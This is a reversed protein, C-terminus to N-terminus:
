MQLSRGNVYTDVDAGTEVEHIDGTYLYSHAEDHWVTNQTYSLSFDGVDEVKGHPVQSPKCSSDCPSLQGTVKINYSSWGGRPCNFTIHKRDQHSQNCPCSGGHGHDDHHGKETTTTKPEEKEKVTKDEDASQIKTGTTFEVTQGKCVQEPQKVPCCIVRCKCRKGPKLGIITLIFTVSHAASM